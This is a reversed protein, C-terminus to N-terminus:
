TGPWLATLSWFRVKQGARVSGLGGTVIKQGLSRDGADGAM